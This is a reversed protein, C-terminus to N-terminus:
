MQFGGGFFTAWSVIAITIAVSTTWTTMGLVLSSATLLLFLGIPRRNDQAYRDVIWGWFFYGVGWALAPMWLLNEIDKQSVGLGADLYLSLLTVIPGPGIAPLGYSFVLAWLRKEFLNPQAQLRPRHGRTNQQNWSFRETM